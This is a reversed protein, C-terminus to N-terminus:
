RFVWYPPIGGAHSPILLTTWRCLLICLIPRVLIIGFIANASPNPHVVFGRSYLEEIWYSAVENGLCGAFSHAVYNCHELWTLVNVVRFHVRPLTLNRAIKCDGLIKRTFYETCGEGDSLDLIHRSYRISENEVIFILGFRM